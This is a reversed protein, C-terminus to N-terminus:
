DFGGAVATQFIKIDTGFNTIFSLLGAHWKEFTTVEDIGRNILREKYAGIIEDVASKNFNSLNVYMFSFDEEENWINKISTILYPGDERFLSNGYAKKFFKLVKNSLAYDYNKLTIPEDKLSSFLVFINEDDYFASVEGNREVEVKDLRQILTLVREYRLYADSKTDTESSFNHPLVVYTNVGLLTKLEAESGVVRYSHDEITVNQSDGEGVSVRGMNKNGSELTGERTIPIVMASVVPAPPEEISSHNTTSSLTCASFFLGIIIIMIKYHSM